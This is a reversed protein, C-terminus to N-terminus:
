FPLLYCLSNCECLFLLTSVIVDVSFVTDTNQVNSYTPDQFDIHPNRPICFFIALGVGILVSIVVASIILPKRRNGM